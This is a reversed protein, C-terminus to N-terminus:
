GLFRWMGRHLGLFVFIFVFLFYFFLHGAPFEGWRGELPTITLVSPARIQRYRRCIEMTSISEGGQQEQLIAPSVKCQAWRRRLILNRSIESCAGSVKFPSSISTRNQSLVWRGPLTSSQLLTTSHLHWWAIKM